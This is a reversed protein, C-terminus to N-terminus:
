CKGKQGVSNKCKTIKVEIDITYENEAKSLEEMKGAKNWDVAGMGFVKDKIEKNDDESKESADKDNM